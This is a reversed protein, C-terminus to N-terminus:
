SVVQGNRTNAVELPYRPTETGIGIWGASLITMRPNNDTQFTMSDTSSPGIFCRRGFLGSTNMWIDLNCTGDTFRGVTNTNRVEIGASPIQVNVGLRGNSRLLSMRYNGAVFWYWGSPSDTSGRIGYEYVNGANDEMDISLRGVTSSGFRGKM